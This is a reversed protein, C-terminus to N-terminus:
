QIHGWSNIRLGRTTAHHTRPAPKLIKAGVVCFPKTAPLITEEANLM